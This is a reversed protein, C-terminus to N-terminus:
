SSRLSATGIMFSTRTAWKTKLMRQICFAKSNYLKSFISWLRWIKRHNKLGECRNSSLFAGNTMTPVRCLSRGNISPVLHRRRHRPPRSTPTKTQGTRTTTAQIKKKKKKEKKQQTFTTAQSAKFSRSFKEYFIFFYIFFYIFIIIKM